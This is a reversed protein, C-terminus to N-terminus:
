FMALSGLNYIAGGDAPAGATGRAGNKGVAIDGASNTSSVASVGDAGRVHNNAFTCSTLTASGAAAINMAGGFRGLGGTVTMNALILSGGNTVVFISNTNGGSVTVLSEGDFSEEDVDGNTSGILIPTTVTITGGGTGIVTNLATAFTAAKGDSVTVDARLPAAALLVLGLAYLFYKGMGMDKNHWAHVVTAVREINPPRPPNTPICRKWTSKM